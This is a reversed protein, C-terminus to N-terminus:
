FQSDDILTAGFDDCYVKLIFACEKGGEYTCAMLSYTAPQALKAEMTVSKSNTAPGSSGVTLKTYNGKIRKGANNQLMLAIYFEDESREQELVVVLNCPGTTTVGYQPNKTYDPKGGTLGQAKEGRWANHITPFTKWTAPDFLKCVSIGRFEKILDEVSIWFAGDKGFTDNILAKNRQTWTSSNDSWDGTWEQGSNGHPNRLKILKYSDIERADLLEYAHGQVVGRPSTAKDGDQHPNSSAGMLYGKQLSEKINRFLLEPNSKFDTTTIRAPIGGTLISLAEHVHGGVINKYGGFLKAYAKEIVNVYIEEKDECSGFAWHDYYTPFLDDIIVYIPDGYKSLRVMYGGKPNTWVGVGLVSKLHPGLVGIASILYCDGIYGQAV